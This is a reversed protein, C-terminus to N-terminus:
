SIYIYIYIYIIFPLPIRGRTPEEKKKKPEEDTRRWKKVREEGIVGPIVGETWTHSGGPIREYLMYGRGEKRGERGRWGGGKTAVGVLTRERREEREREWRWSDPPVPTM